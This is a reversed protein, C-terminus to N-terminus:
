RFVVWQVTYIAPLLMTLKNGSVVSEAGPVPVDWQEEVEYRVEDEQGVLMGPCRTSRPTLTGRARAARGRIM